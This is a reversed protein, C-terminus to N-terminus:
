SVEREVAAALATFARSQEPTLPVNAFTKEVVDLLEPLVNRIRALATVEAKIDTYSRRRASIAAVPMLGSWLGNQGQRHWGKGTLKQEASRLLELAKITEM